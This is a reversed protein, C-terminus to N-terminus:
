EFLEEYTFTVEDRFQDSEEAAEHYRGTMAEYQDETVRFYYVQFGESYYAYKRMRRSLVTEEDAFSPLAAMYVMEGNHDREFFLVQCIEKGNEDLRCFLHQRGERDWRIAGTGHVSEWLFGTQYWLAMTETSKDYRFYYIFYVRDTMMLEPAGDGNMDFFFYDYNRVDYDENEGSRIYEYDKLYYQEGTEPLVFMMENNLLLDYKNKYFDYEELNGKQFESSFDVKEYAEMLVKVTKKDAYKVNEYPYFISFEDIKQIPNENLPNGIFFFSWVIVGIYTFIKMAKKMDTKARRRM